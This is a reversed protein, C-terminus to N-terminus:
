RVYAAHVETDMKDTGPTGAYTLVLFWYRPVSIVGVETLNSKTTATKDATPYEFYLATGNAAIATHAVLKIDNGADDKTHLELAFTPSGTKNATILEILLGRDGRNIFNMSTQTANALAVKALITFWDSNEKNVSHQMVALANPTSNANTM